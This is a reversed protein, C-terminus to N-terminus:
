ACQAIQPSQFRYGVGWATKLYNPRNPNEEIKRRLYLMYLKLLRKGTAPDNNGWIEEILEEHPVVRSSNRYLYALLRFETDTLKVEEGDVLVRNDTLQLTLHHDAYSTEVEVSNTGNRRLIARVKALLVNNECPKILYDDAGISLGKILNVEEAKATLMIIPVNTLSRIRRCAEFGDMIPMMLDLIILDPVATKMKHIAEQGNSATDVEYGNQGLLFTMLTRLDDDDDVVLLRAM